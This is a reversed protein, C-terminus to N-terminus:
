KLFKSTGAQAPAPIHLPRRPQGRLALFEPPFTTGIGSFSGGNSAAPATGELAESPLADGRRIAVKLCYLM